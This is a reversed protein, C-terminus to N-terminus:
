QNEMQMILRAFDKFDTLHNELISQLPIGLKRIRVIHMAADISAECARLLNLIISDLKTYNTELDNEYGQYEICAREENLKAYDSFVFDEFAECTPKDACYLRQGKSIVQMRMVTSAQKLDVLGVEQSPKAAVKQALHWRETAPLEQKPLIAIDINRGAHQTRSAQSGFLYIGILDPVNNRILRVLDHHQDPTTATETTLM